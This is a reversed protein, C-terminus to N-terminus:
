GLPYIGLNGGGGRYVGRSDNAETLLTCLCQNAKFFCIQNKETDFFLCIHKEQNMRVEYFIVVWTNASFLLVNAVEQCGFSQM